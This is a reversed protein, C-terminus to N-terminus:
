KAAIRRDIGFVPDLFAFAKTTLIGFAGIKSQLGGEWAEKPIWQVRREDGLHSLRAYIKETSIEPKAYISYAAGTVFVPCKIKELWNSQDAVAFSFDRMRNFCQATTDRGFMWRMHNYEWLTQPNGYCITRMICEWTFENAFGGSEFAYILFDPLRGKLLDWMSYFPDVSICAKIRADSAARLALYGGVSSGVIALRELDINLEPHEKGVYEWIYDLVQTVVVEWDPRMPLKDRRLVMGQGPGEFTICAYGLELAERPFIYFIEEQTADGGVTQLMLPMKGPMRKSPDPLYLYAPLQFTSGDEEEYPISLQMVSADMLKQARGFNSISTESAELIRPDKTPERGNLMFQAARQYNSARFYGRRAAIRNGANEAEEALQEANSGAEMWQTYWSEFNLDKIKAITEFFEAVEGGEYPTFSLLRLAEFHFFESKFLQHM